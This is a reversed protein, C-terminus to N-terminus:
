VNYLKRLELMQYVLKFRRQQWYTSLLENFHGSKVVYPDLQPLFKAMEDEELHRWMNFLGHFGFTPQDPLGREYSFLDAIEEPAFVIGKRKLDDHLIRCIHDDEPHDKPAPCSSLLTLLKKSRLCFGGNGVRRDPHWPWKAGIYDYKLFDRSWYNGDLIYGDYQVFLVHDTKILKPIEYFAYNWSEVRDTFVPCKEIRYNENTSVDANTVFITDDFKMQRQSLM